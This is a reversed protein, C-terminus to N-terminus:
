EARFKEHCSKCASGVQGFATKIADQYGTEAAQKLAQSSKALQGGIKGAEDLNQFFEPKLRTKKGLEDQSTGPGYLAGMGSGAIAAIANAAAVLKAQDYPEKQEIIQAKIKGMNWAMFEYGAKRAEVQEEPKLQAHAQASLLLACLTASLIPANM